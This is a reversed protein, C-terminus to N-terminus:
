ASAAALASPAAPGSLLGALALSELPRGEGRVADIRVVDFGVDAVVDRVQGLLRTRGSGPLGVVVVDVRSEAAERVQDVLGERADPGSM